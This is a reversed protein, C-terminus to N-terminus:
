IYRYALIPTYSSPHIAAQPIKTPTSISPGPFPSRLTKPRVLNKTESFNLTAWRLHPRFWINQSCEEHM